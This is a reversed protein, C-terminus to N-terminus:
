KAATVQGRIEGAKNAATHINIYLKGAELEAVQEDTLKASGEIPSEPKSFPIVVGANQGSAAPGHFHGMTAPGTLGSYTVKWTLVKTAPDFTVTATGSGKSTTAPVEESGKLDAKYTMTEALAAPIMVTSLAAGALILGFKMKLRRPKHVCKRRPTAGSDAACARASVM